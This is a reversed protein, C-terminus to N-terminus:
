GSMACWVQHHQQCLVVGTCVSYVVVLYTSSVQRLSLWLFPFSGVLLVWLMGEVKILLAHERQVALPLYAWFSLVFFLFGFVIACTVM